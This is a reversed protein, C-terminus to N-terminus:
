CEMEKNVLLEDLQVDHAEIPVKEVEQFPYFIGIMKAEQHNVIFNDYYGGGYGLRYNNKDFALGPVIILDFADNYIIGSAPHTTGFVGKEVKTLDTLVLNELKRKPLTKPVVVTINKELLSQLLPSIDIEKGMPLYAHIKQYGNELIINELQECIWQDYKQKFERNTKARKVLMEQRLAKKQAIIDSKDM